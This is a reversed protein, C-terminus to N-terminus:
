ETILNYPFKDYYDVNNTKAFWTNVAIDIAFRTLMSGGELASLNTFQRSNPSIKIQFVEQWFLSNVSSLAMLAEARRLRASNDKSVLNLTYYEVFLESLTETVSDEDQTIKNESSLSYSSNLNLVVILGTDTPLNFDQNYIFIRTPDINLGVSLIYVLADAAELELWDISPPQSNLNAALARYYKYKFLVVDDVDYNAADNWTQKYNWAM